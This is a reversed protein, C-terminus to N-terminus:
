SSGAAMRMSLKIALIAAVLAAATWVLDTGVASHALPAVAPWVSAALEPSAASCAALTKRLLMRSTAAAIRCDDGASSSM